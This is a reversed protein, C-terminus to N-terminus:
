LALIIADQIGFHWPKKTCTLIATLDTLSQSTFSMGWPRIQPADRTILNPAHGSIGWLNPAPIIRFVDAIIPLRKKRREM